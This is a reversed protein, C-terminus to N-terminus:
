PSRSSLDYEGLDVKKFFWLETGWPDGIKVPALFHGLRALVGGGPIPDGYL